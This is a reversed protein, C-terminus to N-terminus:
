LFFHLLDASVLPRRWKADAPSWEVWRSEYVDIRAVTADLGQEQMSVALSLALALGVPGAGVVAWKLQEGALGTLLDKIVKQRVRLSWADKPVLQLASDLDAMAGAFDCLKRKAAGRIRLASANEPELQLVVNFDAIAGAFDGLMTKAEGRSSLASANEPELQLVVNFDAIAGALDGRKRKAEGRSRLAFANEPELQLGMNFDAIAAALDGRMRKAEGRSRLAFANKPELQLVVNIHAIAGALDGRMRKAEGRRLAVNFDAIAGDYDGLLLKKDGESPKILSAGMVGNTPQKSAGLTSSSQVVDLCLAMVKTHINPMIFDHVRRNTKKKWERKENKTREECRHFNQHLLLNKFHLSVPLFVLYM